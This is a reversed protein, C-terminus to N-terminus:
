PSVEQTLEFVFNLRTRAIQRYGKAVLLMPLDAQWQRTGDEIVLLKPYLEVPAEAFFPELIIDEAGEVDLKIADIREFGEERALTLLTKATVRIPKAGSSGV